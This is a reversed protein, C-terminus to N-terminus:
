RLNATKYAAQKHLSKDQQGPHWERALNRDSCRAQHGSRSASQGQGTDGTSGDSQKHRSEQVVSDHDKISCPQAKKM